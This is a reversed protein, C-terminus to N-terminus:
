RDGCNTSTQIRGPDVHDVVYFLPAQPDDPPPYGGDDLVHSLLVCLAGRM